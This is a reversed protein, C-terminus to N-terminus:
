NILKDYKKRYLPDEKIIVTNNNIEYVVPASLSIIKLVQEFTEDTLTGSFKYKRLNEMEFNIIVNYRRELKVALNGLEESEIVWRRDKWSIVPIPNPIPIINIEPQRASIQRTTKVSDVANRTIAKKCILSQKPKLFIPKLTKKGSIQEIAVSGKILTTQIQDEDPYSKVNFETGYVKINLNSTHVIFQKKKNHAVDFYAEGELYVERTDSKFTSPYRLKSMANLWVKSGDPLIVQSKAGVPVIIENFTQATSESNQASSIFFGIFFVLIFAAAIPISMWYIIKKLSAQKSKTELLFKEKYYGAQVRNWGAVKDYRASKQTLKSLQYYDKLEDFHRKHEINEHIWKLSTEREDTTASGTLYKILLEDIQEHTFKENEM